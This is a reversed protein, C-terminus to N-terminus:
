PRMLRFNFQRLREPRALARHKRQRPKRHNHQRQPPEPHAAAATNAVTVLRHLMTSVKTSSLAKPCDCTHVKRSRSSTRARLDGHSNLVTRNRVRSTAAVVMMEFISFAASPSRRSTKQRTITEFAPRLGGEIGASQRPKGAASASLQPRGKFGDGSLFGRPARRRRGKGNELHHYDGGRRADPVAGHKVAMAVQAGSCARARALDWVESQGFANFCCLLSCWAACAGHRHRVFAAAACGPVAGAGACDGCVGGACVGGARGGSLSRCNLKRIIRGHLNWAVPMARLASFDTHLRPLPLTSVPSNLRPPYLHTRRSPGLLPRRLILSLLVKHHPNKKHDLRRQFQWQQRPPAWQGDRM